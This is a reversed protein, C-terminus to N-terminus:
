RHTDRRGRILVRAFWGYFVTLVLAYTIALVYGSIGKSREVRADYSYVEIGGTKVSWVDTTPASIIQDILRSRVEVSSGIQHTLKLLEPTCPLWLKRRGAESDLWIPFDRSARYGTCAGVQALAGREVHLSEYSPIGALLKPLFAVEGLAIVVATFIGFWIVSRKTSQLSSAETVAIVMSHITGFRPILRRAWNMTAGVVGTNDLHRTRPQMVQGVFRQEADNSAASWMDALRLAAKWRGM